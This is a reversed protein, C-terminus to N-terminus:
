GHINVYYSSQPAAFTIVVDFTTPHVTWGVAIAERPTANDYVGVWLGFSTLGHAAGLITKSSDPGAILDSLYAGSGSGSGEPKIGLFQIAVDTLRRNADVFEDNKPVYRLKAAMNASGPIALYTLPLGPM